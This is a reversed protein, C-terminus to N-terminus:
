PHRALINGKRDIVVIDVTVPAGRLATVATERARRAIESALGIENEQTFELVELATNAALIRDKLRQKLEADPVLNALFAMDVQSRSSHLDLAGQALKVLKAFGGAITLREVPHNRLYKLLGGAFDGM